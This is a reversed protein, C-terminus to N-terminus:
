RYAVEEAAQVGLEVAVAHRRQGARPRVAGIEDAPISTPLIVDSEM